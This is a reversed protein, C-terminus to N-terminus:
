GVFQGLAVPPLLFFMNGKRSGAGSDFAGCAEVTQRCVRVSLGSM